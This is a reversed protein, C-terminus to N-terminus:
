VHPEKVFNDYFDTPTMTQTFSGTVLLKGDNFGEDTATWQVNKYTWKTVSDEYYYSPDTEWMVGMDDLM